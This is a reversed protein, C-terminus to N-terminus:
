EIRTDLVIEVAEQGFAVGQIEGVIDGPQDPGGQSDQDLRAKVRLIRPTEAQPNMLQTNEKTLVFQLFEGKAASNLKFRAAGYPMPSEEDFLTIFLTDISAADITEDLVLKGAVFIPSKEANTMLVMSAIVMLCVFGAAILFYFSKM